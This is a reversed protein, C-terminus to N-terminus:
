VGIIQNNLFEKKKMAIDYIKEFKTVTKDWSFKKAFNYANEVIKKIKDKSRLARIITKALNQYNDVEFILGNNNNKIEILDIIGPISSGIIPIKSLMAELLVLPQSEFRSPLIFFDCANYFYYLKNDSVNEYFIVNKDLDLKSILKLLKPKLNGKGVIILNINKNKSNLIHLAKILIDVGKQFVLRGIFLLYIKNDNPIQLIKKCEKKNRPKFRKHDVGNPVVIFKDLKTYKRLWFSEKKNPATIITANNLFFRGFIQFFSHILLKEILNNYKYPFGHMTIIIPKNMRFIKNVFSIFLALDPSHVHILDFNKLNKILFQILKFSIPTNFIKFNQSFRFLDDFQNCKISGKEYLTLVKVDYNRKKLLNYLNEVHKGVGGFHPPYNKTAILIRM